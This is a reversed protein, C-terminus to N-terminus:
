ATEIEWDAAFAVSEPATKDLPDIVDASCSVIADPPTDPVYEAVAPSDRVFIALPRLEINVDFPIFKSAETTVVLEPLWNTSLLPEYPLEAENETVEFLTPLPCVPSAVVALTAEVNVPTLTAPVIFPTVAVPLPWTREAGAVSGVNAPKARVTVAVPM